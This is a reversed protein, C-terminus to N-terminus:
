SKEHIMELLERDVESRAEITRIPVSPSLNNAAQDLSNFYSARANSDDEAQGV